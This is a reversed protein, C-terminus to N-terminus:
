RREASLASLISCDAVSGNGSCGDVLKKLERRVRQLASIRSQIDELTSEAIRKVDAAAASSDADLELLNLTEGLSFGVEKARRIFRLRPVVEPSYDRYGSAQRRPAPVLGEREYFRVAHVGLGAERAVEGIKM